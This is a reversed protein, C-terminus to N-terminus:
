APKGRTINILSQKLQSRLKRIISPSMVVACSIGNEVIKISAISQNSEVVLYDAGNRACRIKKM